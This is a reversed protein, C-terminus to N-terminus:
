ISAAPAFQMTLRDFEQEKEMYNVLYPHAQHSDRLQTLYRSGVEPQKGVKQSLMILNILTEPNNSDKDLAEQALTDADEYKGQCGLAYVQGNLLIPTPSYKDSLEQYIYFSEQRKEVAHCLTVWAQALQTITADEDKEQMHKLQNKALDPRNMSLYIQVQLAYCELSDANQLIRLAQALDQQLNYIYGAMLLLIPSPLDVSALLEGLQNVVQDKKNIDSGSALYDALMRIALMDPSAHRRDVEDLVVRYKKQAIYARYMYMDREQQEEASGAKLKQAENICHQFNGIYYANKIDFLIDPQSPAM